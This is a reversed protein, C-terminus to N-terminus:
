THLLCLICKLIFRQPLRLNDSRYDYDVAPILNKWDEPDVCFPRPMDRLTPWGQFDPPLPSGFLTQHSLSRLDEREAIDPWGVLPPLVPPKHEHLLSSTATRLGLPSPGSGLVLEKHLDVAPSWVSDEATCHAYFSQLLDLREQGYAPVKVWCRAGALAFRQRLLLREGAPSGEIDILVHDYVGQRVESLLLNSVYSDTINGTTLWSLPHLSFGPHHEPPSYTTSDQGLRQLTRSLDLGTVSCTRPLARLIGGSGIGVILVSAKEPIKGGVPAWRLIADSTSPWPRLRYSHIREVQTMPVHSQRSDLVLDSGVCELCPVSNPIHFIVCDRVEKSPPVRSRLARLVIEPSTDAEVLSNTSRTLRFVDYLRAVRSVEDAYTAVKVLLRAIMKAPPLQKPQRICHRMLRVGLITVMTASVSSQGKSFIIPVDDAGLLETAYVCMQFCWWSLSQETQYGGTSPVAWNSGTDRCHSLTSYMQPVLDRSAESLLSYLLGRPDAGIHMALIWRISVYSLLALAGGTLYERGTIRECEPLDVVRGQRIM